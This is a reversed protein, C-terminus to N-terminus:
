LFRAVTQEAEPEDGCSIVVGESRYVLYGWTTLANGLRSVTAVVRRSDPTLYLVTDPDSEARRKLLAM